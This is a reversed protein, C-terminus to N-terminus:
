EKKAADAAKVADMQAMQKMRIAIGKQVAPRESLKKYWAEYHPYKGELDIGQMKLLVLAIHEWMVWAIDAVTVKDGVLWGSPSTSLHKELVSRVREIEKVYRDIASQIKEPHLTSFWVAQGYYPGQGSIQFAIWQQILYKEPSTGYSLKHEKDYTDILYEIIAGSEWLTVGTNPDEIAPVRGNPNVSIYPEQKVQLFDVTKEEYPINLEELIIQIKVPNPASNGWLIIPKLSSM